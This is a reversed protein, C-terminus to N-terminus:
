VRLLSNPFGLVQELEFTQLSQIISMILVVLVAPKMVPVVIRWLTKIRGAGSVRSADELAADMNRFVPTLLMVKIAITNTALHTWVIGWFSYINFPGQKVFPLKM